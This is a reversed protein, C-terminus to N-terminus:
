FIDAEGRDIHCKSTFLISALPWHNIIFETDKKGISYGKNDKISQNKNM